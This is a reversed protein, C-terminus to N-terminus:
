PQSDIQNRLKAEARKLTPGISGIPIKLLSSIQEYSRGEFYFLRVIAQQKDPLSEILTLLQDREEHGILQQEPNKNHHDVHDDPNPDAVVQGLQISKKIAVRSAIVGLYTALSSRGAYARLAAANNNLLASFVEAALDDVLTGDPQFGCTVAIRAVRSRVLGAYKTVFTTWAREDGAIMEAALRLDGAREEVSRNASKNKSRAHHSDLEEPRATVTPEGGACAYGSVRAARGSAPM